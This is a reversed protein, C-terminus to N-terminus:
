VRTRGGPRAILYGEAGLQEYVHVVTGRAVGLATALERTSPLADGDDLVGQRVADRLAIQLQEGPRRSPPLALALALDSTTWNQAMM